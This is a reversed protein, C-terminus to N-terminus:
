RHAKKQQKWGEWQFLPVSSVCTTKLLRKVANGETVSRAAASYATRSEAFAATENEFIIIPKGLAHPAKLIVVASFHEDRAAGRCTHVV